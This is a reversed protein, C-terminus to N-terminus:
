YCPTNQLPHPLLSGVQLGLPDSKTQGGSGEVQEARTVRGPASFALRFRQLARLFERFWGWRSLAVIGILCELVNETVIKGATSLRHRVADAHAYSPTQGGRDADIAKTTQETFLGTEIKGYRLAPSRVLSHTDLFM